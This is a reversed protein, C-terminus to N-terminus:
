QAVPVYGSRAVVRQGDATLLWDRLQYALTTPALDARVVALVPATFPYRRAGITTATPAVGDVALVRYGASVYQYTVFYYVSYGLALPDRMVNDILAGMFAPTRDAPWAAMPVSGMVIANMLQQSGSNEPRVYPHIEGDGGGLERWQTIRASFVGRIQEASLSTVPNTAHAIMVLADLAISRQVLSVGRSQAYAAEEPSPPNAVLIVDATGDVLNLYAQHTRSHVIRQAIAAALPEQAPTAAAPVIGAEGESGIGQEWRYGIGLLECAIVRALPLTSTSGDIKPYSELTVRPADSPVDRVVVDTGAPVDMVGADVSPGGGVDSGCSSLLLALAWGAHRGKGGRAGIAAFRM